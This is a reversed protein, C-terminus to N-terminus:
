GMPPNESTPEEVRSWVRRGSVWTEHVEGDGGLVVLDARAGRRLSGLEREMGLLRAPRITCAAIAELLPAGAFERLNAIARDLTLQSAALRGDSLRVAVGDSRLLGSGFSATGSARGPAGDLDIRDTVLLLRRGLCRRALRVAAPAVHAGDCVLDCTLREDILAAGPLGPDRHHFSGMANFLHTM